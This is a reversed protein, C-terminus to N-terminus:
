LSRLFRLLTKDREKESRKRPPNKRHERRELEERTYISFGGEPWLGQVEEEDDVGDLDQPAFLREGDHDHLAAIRIEGSDRMCDLLCSGESADETSSADTPDYESAHLILPVCRSRPGRLRMHGVSNTIVRCVDQDADSGRKKSHILGNVEKLPPSPLFDGGFDIRARRAM